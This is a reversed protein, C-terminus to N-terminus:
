ALLILFIRLFSFTLTQAHCILDENDSPSFLYSIFAYALSGNIGKYYVINNWHENPHMARFPFKPCPFGSSHLYWKTVWGIPVLYRLKIPSTENNNGHPIIPTLRSSLIKSCNNWKGARTDGEIISSQFLINYLWHCSRPFQGASIM